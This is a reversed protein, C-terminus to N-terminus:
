GHSALKRNSIGSKGISPHSPRTSSKRQPLPDGADAWGIFFCFHRLQM